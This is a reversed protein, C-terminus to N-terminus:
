KKLPKIKVVTGIVTDSLKRLSKIQKAMDKAEAGDPLTAKKGFNSAASVLKKCAAIEKKQTKDLLEQASSAFDGLDSVIEEIGDNYAPVSKEKIIDAIWGEIRRKEKGGMKQLDGLSKADAARQKAVAEADKEMRTLSKRAQSNDWVEALPYYIWVPRRYDRDEAELINCWGFEFARSEDFEFERKLLQLLDAPKYSM